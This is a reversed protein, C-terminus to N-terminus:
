DRFGDGHDLKRNEASSPACVAAEPSLLRNCPFATWQLDRSYAHHLGPASHEYFAEWGAWGEVM